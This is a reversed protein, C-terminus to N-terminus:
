YGKIIIKKFVCKKDTTESNEYKGILGLKVTYEGAKDFTREVSSGRETFGQGFDWVYDTITYGPLNTKLGDFRITKGAMLETDHHIFVQEINKLEFNFPTPNNITDGTLQNIITLTASYKGPSPFCHKVKEGTLVNGNGFDWEYRPNVSDNEAVNDDYFMFCYKNQEQETCSEFLTEARSFDYIDDTGKRNSSFFGSQLNNKTVCGFDDAPSNIEKGLPIPASWGGDSSVSLYIDKGGM